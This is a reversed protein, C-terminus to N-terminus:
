KGVPAYKNYSRENRKMMPVNNMNIKEVVYEKVSDYCKERMEVQLGNNINQLGAPVFKTGSPLWNDNRWHSTLANPQSGYITFGSINNTPIKPNWYNSM